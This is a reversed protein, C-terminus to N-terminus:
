YLYRSITYACRRDVAKIYKNVFTYRLRLKLSEEYLSYKPTNKCSNTEDLAKNVQNQQPGRWMSFENITFEDGKNILLQDRLLLGTQKYRTCPSDSCTSFGISPKDLM